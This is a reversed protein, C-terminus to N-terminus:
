KMVIPAEDSGMAILTAVELWLEKGGLKEQVCIKQSHPFFTAVRPYWNRKEDDKFQVAIYWTISLHKFEVDLWRFYYNRGLAKKIARHCELHTVKLHNSAM